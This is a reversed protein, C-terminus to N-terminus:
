AKRAAPLSEASERSYRSGSGRASETPASSDSRGQAPILARRGDKGVLLEFEMGYLERLWGPTLVDEPPGSALPRGAGLLVVRGGYHLASNPHHSAVVPALGRDALEGILWLVRHQHSPDLHADPEDLFLFKVGQALGRAILTLRLEGGSLETYPRDALGALGVAELAWAAEKLDEKGPTSFPGLHPARGMLVVEWVRFGFVPRHVQPVYGLHKARARPPLSYVDRGELLVTGRQPERLGGLCELLTTKGSGNPGLLFLVEKERIELSLGALVPRGPAYAYSINHASLRM